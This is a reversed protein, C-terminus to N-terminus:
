QFKDNNPVQNNDAIEGSGLQRSFWNDWKAQNKADTMHQTQAEYDVNIQHYKLEVQRYLQAIEYQYNASYRHHSLVSYAENRMLYAINYHGQEHKLIEQLMANSTVERFNIWSSNNNLIVRVDFDINYVGNHRTPTYNYVVACNTYAAFSNDTPQGTFDRATLRHYAQAMTLNPLILIFTVAIAWACFRTKM